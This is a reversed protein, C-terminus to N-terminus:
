TATKPYSRPRARVCGCVRVPQCFAAPFSAHARVCSRVCARVLARVCSRVCSCVCARARARDGARVIARVCSRVCSRVCAGDPDFEISSFYGHAAENLMRLRNRAASLQRCGAASHHLGRRSTAGTAVPQAAICCADSCTACPQLLKHSTAALLAVLCCVEAPVLADVSAGSRMLAHLSFLENLARESGYLRRAM